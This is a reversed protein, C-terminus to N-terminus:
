RTFNIRLFFTFNNTTFEDFYKSFFCTFKIAHVEKSLTRNVWVHDFRSGSFITFCM